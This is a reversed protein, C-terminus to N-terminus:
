KGTLRRLSELVRMAWSERNERLSLELLQMNYLPDSAMKRGAVFHGINENIDDIDDSSTDTRPVTVIFDPPVYIDPLNRGFINESVDLLMGTNGKVIPINQYDANKTLGGALHIAEIAGLGSVEYFGPNAVEGQVEVGATFSDRKGNGYGSM